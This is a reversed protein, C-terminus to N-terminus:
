PRQRSVENGKFRCYNTWYIDKIAEKFVKVEEKSLNKVSFSRPSKFFFQVANGCLEPHSKWFKFDQLRQHAGFVLKTESIDEYTDLFPTSEISDLNIKEGKM